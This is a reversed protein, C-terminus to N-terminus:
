FKKTFLKYMSWIWNKKGKEVYWGTKSFPYGGNEYYDSFQVMTAVIIYLTMMLNVIPILCIIFAVVYEWLPFTLSIRDENNIINRTGTYLLIMCVIAIIIWGM